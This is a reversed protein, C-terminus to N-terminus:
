NVAADVLNIERWKGDICAWAETESILAPETHEYILYKFAQM